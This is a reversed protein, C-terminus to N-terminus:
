KVYFSIIERSFKMLDFKNLIHVNSTVRVPLYNPTMYDRSLLQIYDKTAHHIKDHPM